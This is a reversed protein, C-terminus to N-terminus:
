MHMYKYYYVIYGVYIQDTATHTSFIIIYYGFYQKSSAGSM